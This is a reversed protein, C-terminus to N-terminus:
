ESGWNRGETRALLESGEGSRIEAFESTPHRLRFASFTGPSAMLRTNSATWDSPMPSPGPWSPRSYRSNGRWVNDTSNWFTVVSYAWSVKVTITRTAVELTRYEQEAGPRTLRAYVHVKLEQDGSKLAKIRFVWETPRSGGIMLNVRKPEAIQFAHGDVEVCMYTHVQIEEVTAGAARAISDM